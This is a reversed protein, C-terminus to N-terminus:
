DNNDDRKKFKIGGGNGHWTKLYFFYATEIYSYSLCTLYGFLLKLFLSPKCTNGETIFIKCSFNM